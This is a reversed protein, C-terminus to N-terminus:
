HLKYLTGLNNRVLVGDSAAIPDRDFRGPLTQVAMVKGDMNLRYIKGAEDALWFSGQWFAPGVLEGTSVKQKWLTEGSAASLASFAGSADAVFLKNGIQLPSSKLSIGRSSLTSGDRLSLFFLDGQFMSVVLMDEKAGSLEASLVIPSASPVKLESLVAASNNLLLQRKWMFSGSTARLSVVDGNSMTAFVRDKYVVPSPKLQMSLGGMKGSFSWIKEGEASFRYLQNSETQVLFDNDVPVPRSMVASSLQVKWKILAQVPDIGYLMGDIDGIVMLGNTLQLGGSEGAARLAVRDLEWGKSDLVRAFRDQAGAVILEGQTSQFLAPMSFGPTSAARRQDLDYSWAVSIGGDPVIKEVVQGTQNDATQSVADDPWWGSLTSCSTLMFMGSMTLPLLLRSKFLPM